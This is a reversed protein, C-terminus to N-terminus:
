NFGEKFFDGIIFYLVGLRQSHKQFHLNQTNQFLRLEEACAILNGGERSDRWVDFRGDDMCVHLEM